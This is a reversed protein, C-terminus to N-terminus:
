FEEPIRRFIKYDRFILKYLFKKNQSIWSPTYKYCGIGHILSVLLASRWAWDSFDFVLLVVERELFAAGSM